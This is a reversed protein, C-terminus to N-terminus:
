CSHTRMLIDEFISLGIASPNKNSNCKVTYNTIHLGKDHNKDNEEELYSELFNIVDNTGIKQMLKRLSSLPKRRNEQPEKSTTPLFDDGDIVVKALAGSTKSRQASSQKAASSRKQTHPSTVVM